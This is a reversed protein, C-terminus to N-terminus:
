LLMSHYDKFNTTYRLKNNRVGMSLQKEKTRNVQARTPLGQRRVWGLDQYTKVVRGLEQTQNARMRVILAGTESTLQAPKQKYIYHFERHGVSRGDPLILEGGTESVRAGGSMDLEMEGDEDNTPYSSSYDYFEDLENELCDDSVKCHSQDIMHKQVSDLASFQKNCYLCVNGIALKQALYEVFGKLDVLYEVDPLFFSHDRAMHSINSELSNSVMACFLCHCESMTPANAIKYDAVEEETMKSFDVTEKKPQSSKNTMKQQHKIPDFNKATEKHKKSNLHQDLAGSSSYKKGCPICEFASTKEVTQVKKQLSNLRQDFAQQKLPPLGTVKRKLNYRHLETQFHAKQEGVTQFALLCSVCTLSPNYQGQEM